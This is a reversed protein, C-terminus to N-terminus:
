KYVARCCFMIWLWVIPKFLYVLYAIIYSNLMCNWTAVIPTPHLTSQVMRWFELDSCVKTACCFNCKRSSWAFDSFRWKLSCQGCDLELPIFFLSFMWLNSQFQWPQQQQVLTCTHGIDLSENLDICSKYICIYEFRALPSAFHLLNGNADSFNLNRICLM